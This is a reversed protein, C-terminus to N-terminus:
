KGDPSCIVSSATLKNKWDARDARQNAVNHQRPIIVEVFIFCKKNNNYLYNRNKLSLRFNKSNNGNQCWVQESTKPEVLQATESVSRRKRRSNQEPASSSLEKAKVIFQIAESVDSKTDESLDDSLLAEFSEM